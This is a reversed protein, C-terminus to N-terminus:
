SQRRAILGCIHVTIIEALIESFTLHTAAIAPDADYAAQLAETPQSLPWATSATLLVVMVLQQANSETLEPVADSIIKTLATASETTAHKHRLATKASINRELVAAQASVLDCLVPREALTAAILEALQDGNDATGHGLHQTRQRLVAVWEQLEADLLELLIAERSDFYRLVNSKALGIRRSLENLSISAAPMEALM